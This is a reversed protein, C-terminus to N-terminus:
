KTPKAKSIATQDGTDTVKILTLASIARSMGCYLLLQENRDATDKFNAVLIVAQAELGQCRRISDVMLQPRQGSPYRVKGKGTHQYMRRISENRPYVECNAAFMQADVVQFSNNLNKTLVDQHERNQVLVAVNRTEIGELGLVAMEVYKWLGELDSEMERISKRHSITPAEM